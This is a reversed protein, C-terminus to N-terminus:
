ESRPYKRDSLRQQIGGANSVSCFPVCELIESKANDYGNFQLDGTGVDSSCACEQAIERSRGPGGPGVRDSGHRLVVCPPRNPWVRRQQGNTVGFSQGDGTRGFGVSSFENM